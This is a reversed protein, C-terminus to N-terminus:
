GITIFMYPILLMTSIAMLLLHSVDDCALDLVYIDDPDENCLYAQLQTLLMPIQLVGIFGLM